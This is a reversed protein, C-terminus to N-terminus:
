RRIQVKSNKFVQLSLDISTRFFVCIYILSIHSFRLNRLDAYNKNFVPKAEQKNVVWIKLYKITVVFICIEEIWLNTITKM